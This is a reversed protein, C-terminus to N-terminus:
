VVCGFSYCSGSLCRIFPLFLSCPSTVGSRMFCSSEKTESALVLSIHVGTRQCGELALRSIYRLHANLQVKRAACFSERWFYQSRFVPASDVVNNLESVDLRLRFGAIYLLHQNNARHNMHLCLIHASGVNLLCKWAGLAAFSGYIKISVIRCPGTITHCNPWLSMWTTTYSIHRLDWKDNYHHAAFYITIVFTYFDRFIDNIGWKPASNPPGTQCFTILHSSCSLSARWGCWMHVNVSSFIVGWAVFISSVRQSNTHLYQQYRIHSSSTQDQQFIIDNPTTTQTCNEKGLCPMAEHTVIWSRQPIM